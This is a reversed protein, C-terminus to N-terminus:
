THHENLCTHMRETACKVAKVVHPM